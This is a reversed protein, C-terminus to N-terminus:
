SRLTAGHEAVVADIARQRIEALETESLTRDPAQLRLSYALSRSGDPVSGGRFVDFLGLGALLAGVSRSLTAEVAAAPVVDAVVFALDLDSSPFRSVRVYPRVAVPRDLLAVLDLSLWAVREAIGYAALADPHVEGVEGVELEGIRVVASRTPHLGAPAAPHLGAPETGLVNTLEDLVAVAAPAAQGALVVSLFEREDPLVARRDTPRYLHGVEFLRAALRRHAANYAVAKLLGPRLSTRLVSESADLPNTIVVADEELGARALDGPALFPDPMAETIGLGVLVQRVRRRELQHPSLRGPEKSRPVTKVVRSYGYHRAVEEIVDIEGTSDYRWSPITVLQVDPDPSSATVFGIPDLLTEITVADLSTGLVANVRSTRVAVAVRSPLEGVADVTGKWRAGPSTLRLLEVFRTAAFAMGEYDVGREFRASAESRLGLRAATAAITPPDFWAIELVLDTTTDDIDTAAGGMVGAVGIVRDTGDCIVVDAPSLQREVGDLTVLREGAAARRVRITGGPLKALDYAHNPSGLELMVYNSADVVNNIPRMGSRTLRDAIWRPSDAVVVGTILHSTFRGCGERDLLEVRVGTSPRAQESSESSGLTFPLRQRAALDRAIGAHSWADPRNRTLDLEFVVDRRVGLAEFVPAGVPLGPPLIVIGSADTGLGLETASCLMGNSWQGRLKRRAIELGSAMVTGVTALPVRDGVGINFAGCCIQLAAGDGPDVDVLQIKDADPHPRLTLVEAVIVGAVPAGVEHVGDVALGLDNLLTAIHDVDDGIPAFENLWSLLAKM